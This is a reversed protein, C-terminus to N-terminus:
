QPTDPEPLYGPLKPTFEAHTPSTLVLDLLPGLHDLPHLQDLQAAYRAQDAASVSFRWQVLRLIPQRQAVFGKQKGAAFGIVKGKEIWEQAITEM